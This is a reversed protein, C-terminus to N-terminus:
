EKRTKFDSEWETPSPYYATILWLESEGIGCVVHLYINHCSLGLVLHSPYPYDSPYSEIIEGHILANSIDETSIGRQLIRLLIHSTWRLAGSSCLTRIKISDLNNYVEILGAMLESGKSQEKNTNLSM